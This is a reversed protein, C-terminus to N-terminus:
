VTGYEVSVTEESKMMSIQEQIDKFYRVFVAILICGMVSAVAILIYHKLELGLYQVDYFLKADSLVKEKAFPDVFDPPLERNPNQLHWYYMPDSIVESKPNWHRHETELDQYPGVFYNYNNLATWCGCALEETDLAAPCSDMGQETNTYFDESLKMFENTM